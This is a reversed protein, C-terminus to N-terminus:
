WFYTVDDYITSMGIVTGWVNNIMTAAVPKTDILLKHKM